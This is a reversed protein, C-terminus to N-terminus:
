VIFLHSFTRIRNVHEILVRLVMYRMNIKKYKNDSNNVMWVIFDNFIEILKRDYLQNHKEM